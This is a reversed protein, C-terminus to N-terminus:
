QRGAARILADAAQAKSRDHLARHLLEDALSSQTRRETGAVEALADCTSRSLHLHKGIVQRLENNQSSM